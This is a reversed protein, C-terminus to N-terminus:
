IRTSSRSRFLTSPYAYIPFVPETIHKMFPTTEYFLKILPMVCDTSANFCLITERRSRRSESVLMGQLSSSSLFSQTSLRSASSASPYEYNMCLGNLM